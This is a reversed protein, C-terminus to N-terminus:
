KIGVSNKGPSYLYKNMFYWINLVTANAVCNLPSQKKLRSTMIFNILWTADHLGIIFDTLM